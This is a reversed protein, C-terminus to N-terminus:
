IWTRIRTYLKNKYLVHSRTHIERNIIEALTEFPQNLTVGRGRMKKVSEKDPICTVNQSHKVQANTWENIREKMWENM